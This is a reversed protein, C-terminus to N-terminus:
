KQAFFLFICNQISLPFCKGLHCYLWYRHKWCIHIITSLFQQRIKALHMWMPLVFKAIKYILSENKENWWKWCKEVIFGKSNLLPDVNEYDTRKKKTHAAGFNCCFFFFVNNIQNHSIKHNYFFDGVKNRNKINM